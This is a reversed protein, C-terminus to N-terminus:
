LSIRLRARRSRRRGDPVEIAVPPGVERDRVATDSVDRDQEPVPVAGEGQLADVAGASFGNDDSVEVAVPLGVKRDRGNV